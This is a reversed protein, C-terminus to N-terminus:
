PMMWFWAFVDIDRYTLIYIPASSKSIDHSLASSYSLCPPLSSPTSLAERGWRGKGGQRRGNVVRVQESDDYGWVLKICSQLWAPRYFSGQAVKAKKTEKKWGGVVATVSLSVVISTSSRIRILRSPFHRLPFLIYLSRFRLFSVFLRHRYRHRGPDYKTCAFFSAEFLDCAHAFLLALM